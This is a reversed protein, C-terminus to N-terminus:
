PVRGLETVLIDHIRGNTAVVMGGPLDVPGGQYDTVHGGAALVIAGGGACDWVKLKREWYGDYTGDGVFCLDM